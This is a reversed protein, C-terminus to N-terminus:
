LDSAGGRGWHRQAVDAQVHANPRREKMDFNHLGVPLFM